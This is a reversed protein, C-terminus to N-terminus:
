AAVALFPAFTESATLLSILAPIQDARVNGDEIHLTPSDGPVWYARIRDPGTGITFAPAVDDHTAPATTRAAHRGHITPTSM